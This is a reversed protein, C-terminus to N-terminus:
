SASPEASSVRAGKATSTLWPVAEADSTGREHAQRIGWLVM